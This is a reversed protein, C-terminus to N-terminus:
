VALDGGQPRIILEEVMLSPSQATAEYVLRAVDDPLMMQNSYRKRHERLWMPTLVAGPYVNIIKIGTDRLEARLVNMMAELGAKSASYLASKTYVKKAAFSLINVIMGARRKIMSPIIAKSTLFPGRLNTEIISAFDKSSSSQFDKFSTLGANNILVDVARYKKLIARAVSTVSHKHRVDCRYIDCSGGFTVIGRRLSRLAKVTRGTAVVLDGKGAFVDAM